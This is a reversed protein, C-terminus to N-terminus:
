PWVSELSAAAESAQLIRKAEADLQNLQAALEDLSQLTIPGSPLDVRSVQDSTAEVM